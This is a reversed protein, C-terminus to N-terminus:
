YDEVGARTYLNSNAGTSPPLSHKTTEVEWICVYLKSFEAILNDGDLLYDRGLIEMM